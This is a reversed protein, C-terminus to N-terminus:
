RASRAPLSVESLAVRRYRECAVCFCFGANGARWRHEEIFPEVVARWREEAAAALRLRSAAARVDATSRTKLSM